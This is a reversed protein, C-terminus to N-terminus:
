YRRRKKKKRSERILEIPLSQNTYGPEWLKQFISALEKEMKLFFHGWDYNREQFLTAPLIRTLVLDLVTNAQNVGFQNARFYGAIKKSVPLWSDEASQVSGVKYQTEGNGSDFARILAGARIWGSLVEKFDKSFDTESILKNVFSRNHLNENLTGTQLRELIAKAGYGTGIDSGNFFCCTNKDLFTVGYIYGDDNRKFRAVINEANLTTIFTSIDTQKELALDVTKRIRQRYAKRAEKNKAYQREVNKLTPREYISSSKIPIGVGKNKKKDFLQYVLGGTKYMKTDPEGRSALVNYEMLIEAYEKFNTYRYHKAVTRVINSIENKTPRKGYEVSSLDAPKLGNEVNKAQAEAKLLGFIIEIERRAKSSQNKGIYFTNIQTGNSRVNVTAIHIHTNATDKHQYVLYPQEGFGIKDMYMAAIERLTQESIEEDPHFSLTIHNANTKAIKNRATLDTFRKLKNIFSLEELLCGFGVADICKAVGEKVKNENYSLVGRITKGSKVRAIM